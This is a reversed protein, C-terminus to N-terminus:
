KGGMIERIFAGLIALVCFFLGVELLVLALDTNM